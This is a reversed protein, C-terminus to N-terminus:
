SVWECGCNDCTAILSSGDSYSRLNQVEQKGCEGCTWPLKKISIVNQPESSAKANLRELVLRLCKKWAEEGTLSNGDLFYIRPTETQMEEITKIAQLWDNTMVGGEERMAFRRAVRV